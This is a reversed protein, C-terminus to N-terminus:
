SASQAGGSRSGKDKSKSRARREKASKMFPPEQPRPLKRAIEAYKTASIKYYDYNMGAIQYLAEAIAKIDIPSTKSHGSIKEGLKDWEQEDQMMKSLPAVGAANSPRSIRRIDSQIEINRLENQISTVVQSIRVPDPDASSVYSLLEEYLQDVLKRRTYWTINIMNYLTLEEQNTTDHIGFIPIDIRAATFYFKLRSASNIKEYRRLTLRYLDDTKDPRMFCGQPTTDAKADRLMRALEPEYLRRDVWNKSLDAWSWVNIAVNKGFLSQWELSGTVAAQDPICERDLMDSNEPSNQLEISFNPVLDFNIALVDSKHFADCIKQVKDHLTTEKIDPSIEKEIYLQHLFEYLQTAGAKPVPVSIYEGLAKPKSVEPDHFVVIQRTPKEGLTAEFRGAELLCYGWDQDEGTYLLIFIDASQIAKTIQSALQAGAPFQEALLIKIKSESHEAILDGITSAADSDKPMKHSIFININPAM